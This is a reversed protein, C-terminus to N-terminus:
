FLEQTRLARPSHVLRCLDFFSLGGLFIWHTQNKPNGSRKKASEGRPVGVKLRDQEQFSRLIEEAKEPWLGESRM